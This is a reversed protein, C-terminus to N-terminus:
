PYAALYSDPINVPYLLGSLSLVILAGLTTGSIYM